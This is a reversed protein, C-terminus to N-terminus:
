TPSNTNCWQDSRRGLRLLRHVIGSKAQKVKLQLRHYDLRLKNLFEVFIDKYTKMSCQCLCGLHLVVTYLLGM